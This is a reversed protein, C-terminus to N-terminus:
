NLSAGDGRAPMGAIRDLAGQLERTNNWGHIHRVIKPLREASMGTNTLLFLRAVQFISEALWYLDAGDFRKRNKDLHTLDNRAKKVAKVWQEVNSGILMEALDGLEAILDKLRRDLDFDNAHAMVDNFWDHHEEPVMKERISRRLDDFARTPMTKGKGVLVRHLGEAASSVNLYRNEAYISQARMTLLSDVIPAIGPPRDLWTAVAKIGGFDDFPVPVRQAELRHAKLQYGAEQIPAKFEIPVKTNEIPEGSLMTFPRDARYVHISVLWDTRDVCLSSLSHLSEADEMIQSLPTMASYKITFEPWYSVTFSELDVVKKSRRFVLSIEGRSFRARKSEPLVLRSVLERRDAGYAEPDVEVTIAEENIWPATDRLHVAVEDFKTEDDGEFHGGILFSEPRYLRRHIRRCKMLTVPERSEGDDIIGLVRPRVERGEERQVGDPMREVLPEALTLTIGEVPDFVLQGHQMVGHPGPLWFEGTSDLAQM